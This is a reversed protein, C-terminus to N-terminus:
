VGAVMAMTLPSTGFVGVLMLAGSWAILGHSPGIRHRLLVHLSCWSVLWVSVSLLVAGQLPTSGADALAAAVSPNFAALMTLVGMVAGGLSLALIAAVTTKSLTEEHRRWPATRGFRLNLVAISAM